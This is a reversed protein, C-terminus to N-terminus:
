SLASCTSPLLSDKDSPSVEENRVCAIDYESNLSFSEENATTTYEECGGERTVERYRARVRWSEIKEKEREVKGWGMTIKVRLLRL